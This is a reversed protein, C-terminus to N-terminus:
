LTRQVDVFEGYKFGVADALAMICLLDLTYELVESYGILTFIGRHIQYLEDLDTNQM